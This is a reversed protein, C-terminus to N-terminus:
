RLNFHLEEWDTAPLRTAGLKHYLRKAADNDRHVDFTIRSLGRDRAAAFVNDLLAKGVGHGRHSQKVYWDDLRLSLWRSQFTSYDRLHYMAYGVADDSDLAIYGHIRPNGIGLQLRLRDPNPQYRDEIGQYVALERMLPLVHDVDHQHMSRVTIM